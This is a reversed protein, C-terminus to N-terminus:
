VLGARLKALAHMEERTHEYLRRYIRYLGQYRDHLEANPRVEVDPPVWCRIDRLDHLLGVGVGALFAAGLAASSRGLIVQPLGTVDSVIQAWVRNRAGGGIGIIRDLRAGELQMLELIHALGYSVGELLARYVHRRTHALTLGFIVGQAQDDQIPSREGSFYPLVVLGDSGPPAAEAEVALLEYADIGLEEEARRESQGFNDRFWRTLAASTAM